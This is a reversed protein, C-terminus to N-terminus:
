KGGAGTLILVRQAEDADFARVADELASATATDVCNHVEPRDITVVTVSGDTEVRVTASTLADGEM